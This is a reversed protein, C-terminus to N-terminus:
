DSVVNPLNHSYFAVDRNALLEFSSDYHEAKYFNKQRQTDSQFQEIKELIFLNKILHRKLSVETPQNDQPIQSSAPFDGEKSQSSRKTDGFGQIVSNLIVPHIDATKSYYIYINLLKRKM